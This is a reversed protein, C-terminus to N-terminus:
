NTSHGYLYIELRFLGGKLKGKILILRYGCLVMSAQVIMGYCISCYAVCELVSNYHQYQRRRGNDAAFGAFSCRVLGVFDAGVGVFV